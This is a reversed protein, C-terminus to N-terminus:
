GGSVAPSPIPGALMGPLVPCFRPRARRASLSLAAQRCQQVEGPVPHETATARRTIQDAPGRRATPAWCPPRALATHLQVMSAFAVGTATGPRQRPGKVENFIPTLNCGRGGPRHLSYPRQVLRMPMQSGSHSKTDASHQRCTRLSYTVRGCHDPGTRRVKQSAFSLGMM